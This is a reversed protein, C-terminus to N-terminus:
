IKRLSALVWTHYQVIHTIKQENKIFYEGDTVWLDIHTPLWQDLRIRLSDSLELCKMQPFLEEISLPQFTSSELTQAFKQSINGIKTRRLYTVYGGSGLIQWLDHAISRVYTGASVKARLFVEPYEYELIEIEYITSSRAKMEFDHWKRVKDLAKQGNLKLASYKPPIQSIEGTFKQQLIEEIMERTIQQQFYQQQESSIYQIEQELDYSATVGNLAIKFEYTKMDKEFYPILKTYNGVAVLVLGTALPDLTGTHWM